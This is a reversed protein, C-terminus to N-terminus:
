DQNDFDFMSVDGKGERILEPLPATLDIVTSRTAVWPPVDVIFSIGKNGYLELMTGTDPVETDESLHEPVHM